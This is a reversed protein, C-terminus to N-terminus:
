IRDSDGLFVKDKYEDIKVEGRHTSRQSHVTIKEPTNGIPDNYKNADINGRRTRPLITHKYPNAPGDAKVPQQVPTENRVPNSPQAVPQVTQQPQAVPEPARGLARRARELQDLDANLESEERNIAEKLDNTDEYTENNQLRDLTGTEDAEAIKSFDLGNLEERLRSIRERESITNGSVDQGQSVFNDQAYQPQGNGADGSDGEMAQLIKAQKSPKDTKAKKPMNKRPLLMAIVMFLAALASTAFSIIVFYADGFEYYYMMIYSIGIAINALVPFVAMILFPRNNFLLSLFAFVFAVVGLVLVLITFTDLGSNTLGDVKYDDRKFFELCSGVVAGISSVMGLVRVTRM